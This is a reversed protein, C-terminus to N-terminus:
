SELETIKVNPDECKMEGAFSFEIADVDPYLHVSFSRDIAYIGVGCFGREGCWEARWRRTRSHLEEWKAQVLNAGDEAHEAAGGAQGKMKNDCLWQIAGWLRWQGVILAYECIRDTPLFDRLEMHENIWQNAQECTMAPRESM